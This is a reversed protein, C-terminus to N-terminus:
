MDIMENFRLVGNGRLVGDVGEPMQYSRSPVSAGGPTPEESTDTVLVLGAVKISDILSPVMNQANNIGM